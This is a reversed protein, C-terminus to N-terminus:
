SNNESVPAKRHIVVIWERLVRFRSRIGGTPGAEGPAPEHQGAARRRPRQGEHRAVHQAPRAKDRRALLDGQGADAKPRLRDPFDAADQGPRLDLDHGHAVDLLVADIVQFPAIPFDAVGDPPQDLLRGPAFAEVVRRAAAIHALLDHFGVVGLLAALLVELAARGIRIKPLQELLFRVHGGDLHHRGVMSVPRDRQCRQFLPHVHDRPSLGWGHTRRTPGPRGDCGSRSNM